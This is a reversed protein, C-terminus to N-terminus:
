KEVNNEFYSQEVNNLPSDNNIKNKITKVIKNLVSIDLENPHKFSIRISNDFPKVNNTKITGGNMEGVNKIDHEFYKELSCASKAGVYINNKALYDIIVLPCHNNTDILLTSYIHNSKPKYVNLGNKILHNYAKEWSEKREDIDDYNDYIDSDELINKGSYSGGRMKNQQAGGILPVFQNTKDDDIVLVGYGIKGGIKHTSFFVANIGRDKMKIPLKMISQTADLVILPKYQLIKHMNAFQKENCNLISYQKYNNIISDVDLIEGTASNVQTLFLCGAKDSIEKDLLNQTYNMHYIECNDKIASHDYNSGIIECYPNITQIWHVITAISETAGSNFIVKAEPSAGVINKIKSELKELDKRAVSTEPYMGDSINLDKNTTNCTSNYNLYHNIRGIKNNTLSCSNNCGCSMKSFNFVVSILLCITLIVCFCLLIKFGYKLM